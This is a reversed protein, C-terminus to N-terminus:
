DTDSLYRAEDETLYGLQVLADAFPISYDRLGFRQRISKEVQQGDYGGVPCRTYMSNLEDTSICLKACVSNVMVDEPVPTPTLGREECLRYWEEITQIKTVDITESM